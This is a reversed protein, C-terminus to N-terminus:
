REPIPPSQSSHIMREATQPPPKHPPFTFDKPSSLYFSFLSIVFLCFICFPPLSRLLDRALLTLYYSGLSGEVAIVARRVIKRSVLCRHTRIYKQHFKLAPENQPMGLSSCYGWPGEQAASWYSSTPNQAPYPSTDRLVSFITLSHYIDCRPKDSVIGLHDGTKYIIIEIITAFLIDLAKNLSCPSSHARTSCPCDPITM